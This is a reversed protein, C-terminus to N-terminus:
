IKPLGIYGRFDRFLRYSEILAVKTFGGNKMWKSAVRRMEKKSVGRDTWALPEVTGDEKVLVVIQRDDTM